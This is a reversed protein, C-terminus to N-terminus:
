ADIKDGPKLATTTTMVEPLRCRFVQKYDKCFRKATRTDSFGTEIVVKNAGYVLIMEKPM